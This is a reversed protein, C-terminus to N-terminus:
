LNVIDCKSSRLRSAITRRNINLKEGAELMSNFTKFYYGDGPKIEAFQDPMQVFSSDLIYAFIKYSQSNSERM